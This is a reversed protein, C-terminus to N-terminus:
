PEQFPDILTGVVLTRPHIPKRPKLKPNLAELEPEFNRGEVLKSVQTNDTATASCIWHDLSGQEGM